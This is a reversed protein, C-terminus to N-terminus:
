GRFVGKWRGLVGREAENSRRLEEVGDNMDSSQKETEGVGPGMVGVFM